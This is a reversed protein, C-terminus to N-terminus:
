LVMNSINDVTESLIKDADIGEIDLMEAKILKTNKIGFCNEALAKIYGCSFDPIYQGGATTVYILNEAKCLGIPMGNTGYISVIGIAYINEIYVKLISPFSVDWFPASIVINDANAFQRAYRFMEDDYQGANLLATRRNLMEETLPRINETPLYLDTHDGMKDLVAKAIKNTRSDSRVCSNIYLTM